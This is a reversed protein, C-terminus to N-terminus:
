FSQEPTVVYVTHGRQYVALNYQLALEQMSDLPNTRRALEGTVRVGSVAPNFFYQLGAKRALFEFLENIPYDELRYVDPQNVELRGYGARPSARGSEVNSVPILGQGKSNQQGLLPIQNSEVADLDRPASSVAKQATETLQANVFTVGNKGISRVWATFPQNNFEVTLLDGETLSRSGILVERSAPDIGRVPLHEIAQAFTTAATQQKEPQQQAPQDSPESAGRYKGRIPLQFPDQKKLRSVLGDAFPKQAEQGKGLQSIIQWLTSASDKIAPPTPKAANASSPEARGLSAFLVSSLLLGFIFRLM